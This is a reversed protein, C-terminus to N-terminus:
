SSGDEYVAIARLNVSCACFIELELNAEEAWHHIASIIIITVSLLVVVFQHPMLPPRIVFSKSVSHPKAMKRKPM